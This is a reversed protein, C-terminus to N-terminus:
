RLNELVKESLVISQFSSEFTYDEEDDIKHDTKFQNLKSQDISPQLKKLVMLMEKPTLHRICLEDRTPIFQCHNLNMLSLLGIEVIKKFCHENTKGFQEITWEKFRDSKMKLAIGIQVDLVNMKNIIHQFLYRDITNCYEEIFLHIITDNVKFSKMMMVTRTLSEFPEILVEDLREFYSCIKSINELSLQIIYNLLTSIITILGDEFNKIRDDVKGKLGFVRKYRHILISVVTSLWYVLGSLSKNSLKIVSEISRIISTFFMDKMDMRFNRDTVKEIISRATDTLRGDFAYTPSIITTLIFDTTQFPDNVFDNVCEDLQQKLEANEELVTNLQESVATYEGLLLIYKTEFDDSNENDNLKPTRPESTSPTYPKSNMVTTQSANNENASIINIPLSIASIKTKPNSSLDSKTKLESKSIVGTSTTTSISTGRKRQPVSLDNNLVTRERPTKSSIPKGYTLNISSNPSTETSTNVINKQLMNKRKPQAYRSVQGEITQGSAVGFSGVSSFSGSRQRPTNLYKEVDNVIFDNSSNQIFSTNYSQKIQNIPENQNMQNMQIQANITENLKQPDLSFHEIMFGILYNTGEFPLFEEKLECELYKNLDLKLVGREKEGKPTLQILSFQLIKESKFQKTKVDRAITSNFGFVTEYYAIGKEVLVRKLWGVNKSGGRKWKVYVVSGNFEKLNVVSTVKVNFRMTEYIMNRKQITEVALNADSAQLPSLQIKLSKPQKPTQSM